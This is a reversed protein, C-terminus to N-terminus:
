RLGEYLLSGIRVMTAGAEIAAEFDGSMGMSLEAFSESMGFRHVLRDRLRRLSEFERRVQGVDDVLSAMGMLGRLRLRGAALVQEVGREVEDVPWGHKATEQAIHVELLVDVSRDAREAESQVVDVLEPRDISHITTLRGIGLTRRVKNRQLHGILHWAIGPTGALEAEKRWLEQPRSEGLDSLGCDVLGRVVDADVYKTVAILRVADDARGARRSAAAVRERVRDVNAALRKTDVM